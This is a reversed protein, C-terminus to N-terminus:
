WKWRAPMRGRAIKALKDRHLLNDPFSFYAAKPWYGVPVPHQQHSHLHVQFPDKGQSAKLQFREGPKCRSQLRALSGTVPSEALSPEQNMFVTLHSINSSSTVLNQLLKNYLFLFSVWSSYLTSLIRMLDITRQFLYIWGPLICSCQYTSTGSIQLELWKSGFM